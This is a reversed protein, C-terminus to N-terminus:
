ARLRHAMTMENCAIAIFYNQYHNQYYIKLANKAVRKQMQLQRANEAGTRADEKHSGGPLAL